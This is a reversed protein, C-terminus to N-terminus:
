HKRFSALPLLPLELSSLQQYHDLAALFFSFPRELTGQHPCSVILRPLSWSSLQCSVGAPFRFADVLELFDLSGVVLVVFFDLM